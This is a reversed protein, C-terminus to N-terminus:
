KFAPRSVYCKVKATIQIHKNTLILMKTCTYNIWHLPKCNFFEHVVRKKRFMSQLPSHPLTKNQEKQM